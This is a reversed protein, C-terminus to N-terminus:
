DVKIYVDGNEVKVPYTKLDICVPASLAKGTRIDFRGSHLPCEIVTGILLGDELKAVEHTCIGHTAYFGKPSNYIAYEIDNHRFGIVDEDDIDDARCAKVWEYM